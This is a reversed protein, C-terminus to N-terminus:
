NFYRKEAELRADIADQLVKYYGISANKGDIPIQVHWRRTLKYWGVGKFGSINNKSPRKNRSQETRTVWRCNDPEYGGDNNERDLTLGVPRKGMDAVFNQFGDVGRWRECVKIGRGGYNGYAPNYTKYCRSLMNNYVGYLPHTANGSRPM